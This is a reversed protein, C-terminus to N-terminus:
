QSLEHSFVVIKGFSRGRADRSTYESWKERVDSCDLCIVACPRERISDAEYRATANQVGSYRVTRSGGDAHILAMIPYVYFSPPLHEAADQRVFSDVAVLDCPLRNVEDAAAVSEAAVAQHSDAFYLEARPHYVDDVLSWRVLSRTRNSAAYVLGTAVLVMVIVAHVRRSGYKELYLGTLAAGLVFIPEHLRSMWSHWRLSACFFLLGATIGAAFYVQTWGRGRWGSWLALACSIALLGLPLLNSAHVERLSFQAAEFKTDMWMQKPDDPDAGILRMLKRAAVGIRDNIMRSPVGLHVSVNRIVNAATGQLTKDAITLQLRPTHEPLPMGLLSGTLQYCRTWHPANVLVVAAVAIWSCKLLKVRATKNGMWWCALLMWPLFIYAIGKTLIALGASLGAGLIFWRNQSENWALVFAASAAIWFAVVATNMAGSAELIMTPITLAVIGALVQGNRGAGLFKAILSACLACGLYSFFEVLNVFRDSSALLMTQAMAFESWPAFVLQQYDPTPYFDVSRNSIWMVARPLHYVMADWTQPPCVLATILVLTAILGGGGAALKTVFSVGEGAAGEAKARLAFKGRGFWQAAALAVAVVVLWALTAGERTLLRYRGLGESIAWVCVGLM